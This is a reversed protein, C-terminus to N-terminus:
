LPEFEPTEFDAFDTYDIFDAKAITPGFKEEIQIDFDLCAEKEVPSAIEALTLSRVSTMYMEQVNAKMIKHAMAPEIGIAPGLDRGL